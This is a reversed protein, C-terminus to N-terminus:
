VLGTVNRFVQLILRFHISLMNPALITYEERMERTFEVYGDHRKM